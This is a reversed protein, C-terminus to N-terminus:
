FFKEFDKEILYYQNNNYPTKRTHLLIIYGGPYGTDKQLPIKDVSQSLYLYGITTLDSSKLTPPQITYYTYKYAHIHTQECTHTCTHKNTEEKTKSM